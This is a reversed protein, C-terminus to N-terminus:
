SANSDPRVDLNVDLPIYYYETHALLKALKGYCNLVDDFSPPFMDLTEKKVSDKQLATLAQLLYHKSYVHDAQLPVGLVAELIEKIL